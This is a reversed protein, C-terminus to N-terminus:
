ANVLIDGDASVINGTINDILMSAVDVTATIGILNSGDLEPLGPSGDIDVLRFLNGVEPSTPINLQDIGPRTKFV